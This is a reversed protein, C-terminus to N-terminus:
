QWVHRETCVTYITYAPEFLLVWKRLTVALLRQEETNVTDATVVQVEFSVNREYLHEEM